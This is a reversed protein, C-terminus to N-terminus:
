ETVNRQAQSRKLADIEESNLPALITVAFAKIYEAKSNNIRNQSRDKVFVTCMQEKIQELLAAEVHTEQNFPVYRKIPPLYTNSVSFIDGEYDRKLSDMPAIICRVLKLAEQKLAAIDLVPKVPPPAKRQEEAELIRNKLTAESINAGFTVGLEEAYTKLEDLKSM